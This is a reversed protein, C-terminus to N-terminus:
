VSQPLRKTEKNWTIRRSRNQKLSWYKKIWFKSLKLLYAFGSKSFWGCQSNNQM